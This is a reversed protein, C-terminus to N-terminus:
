PTTLSEDLTIQSMDAGGAKEGYTRLLGLLRCCKLGSGGWLYVRVSYRARMSSSLSAARWCCDAAAAAATEASAGPLLSYLPV